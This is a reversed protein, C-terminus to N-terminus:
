SNSNEKQASKESSTSKLFYSISELQKNTTDSSKKMELLTADISELHTHMSLFVVLPAGIITAILFGVLLGLIFGLLGHIVSVGFYSNFISSGVVACAILILLWFIYVLIKYFKTM